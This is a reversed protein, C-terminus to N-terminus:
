SVGWGKPIFLDNYVNVAYRDSMGAIYDLAAREAGESELVNHYEQPLKKSNETFYRFLRIILEQAKGEEGKAIPNRYVREFMFRHLTKFCAYIDDAMRIEGSQSCDIVSRVLRDIRASKGKGLVQRIDAPIDEERLIGARISDDIDHNIYAIKDALRVIRGELTQAEEGRTHCRIGDRVELTLNLGRGENELVEVVRVSQEFHTFGLTSIEDLAREGAHGFPTHGLDHGLAIAETFDENLALARAITRAIQSVELTHTLRTRYHDGEPALYVQTKHKLRRFAKSHIVRDRDRQFCTRISCPPIEMERGKSNAALAAFPSLTGKEIQEIRERISASEGM